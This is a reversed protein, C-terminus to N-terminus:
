HLFGTKERRPEFTLLINKEHVLFLGIIFNMVNLFNRFTMKFMRNAIVSIVNEHLKDM